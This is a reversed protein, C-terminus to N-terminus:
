EHLSLFYADLKERAFLRKRTGIRINAEAEDAIRYLVNAGVSYRTKAQNLTLCEVQNLDIDMTQLKRL